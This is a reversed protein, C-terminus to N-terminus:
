DTKLQGIDFEKLAGDLMEKVEVEGGGEGRAIFQVRSFLCLEGGSDGVDVSCYLLSDLLTEGLKGGGGESLEFERISSSSSASLGGDDGGGSGGGGGGGESERM